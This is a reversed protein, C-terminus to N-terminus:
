NTPPEPWPINSKILEVAADAQARYDAAEDTLGRSDKRFAEMYLPDSVERYADRRASDVQNYEAIHKNSHNTVWASGSWEDFKTLPQSHTFGDKIAGLDKVSESQTCNLKDYITVGRHDEIYETGSLDDLAVVAFGEKPELPKCRLADQPIHYTGGRYEAKISGLVERTQKNIPHYYKELITM